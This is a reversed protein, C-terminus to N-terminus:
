AQRHAARSEIRLLSERTLAFGEERAIIAGDDLLQRLSLTAPDWEGPTQTNNAPRTPRAPRQARTKDNTM